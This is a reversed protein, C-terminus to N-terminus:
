GPNFPKWGVSSGLGHHGDKLLFHHMLLYPIYQYTNPILIVGGQEKRKTVAFIRPQPDLESSM